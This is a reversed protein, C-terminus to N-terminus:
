QRADSAPGGRLDVAPVADIPHRHRTRRGAVRRFGGDQAGSLTVGQESGIIEHPGERFDHKALALLQDIFEGTTEAHYANVEITGDRPELLLLPYGEPRGLPPELCRLREDRLTRAFAERTEAAMGLVDTDRM